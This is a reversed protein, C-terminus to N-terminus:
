PEAPASGTDRLFLGVIAALGAPAFFLGISFGGLIVFAVLLVTCLVSVVRGRRGGVLIPVITMVIPFALSVLATPGNVELLTATTEVASGTSTAEVGAYVPVLLLYGVAVCALGFAVWRAIGAPTRRRPRADPTAPTSAPAAAM